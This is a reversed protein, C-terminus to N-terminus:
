GALPLGNTPADGTTVVDFAMTLRPGPGHIATTGHWLYSPFLVLRGARPQVTLGPEAGPVPMQPEGFKIWGSRQETDETESPVAVYYASSLWGEPHIHNVHYGQAKLQVSWCGTLRAEGRNGASLPHETSDGLAARYDAIPELFASVAAKIVPDPDAVLDGITQTGSRMSQDFPNRALKHRASLCAQLDANFEDISRWGAPPELDYTRVLRDYDYLHAYAPDGILRAATAEHAIWIHSHPELTRHARILPMAQDARGLTMLVAVLTQTMASDDPRGRVAAFAEVLAEQTRGSEHLVTALPWRYEPAPGVRAILDRLLLETGNLDGTLRLVEAFQLQLNPIDRHAAAATALERAFRPDGRMYRLKALMFQAELARPEAAVALAYADEAADFDQEQLLARARTILRDPEGVPM